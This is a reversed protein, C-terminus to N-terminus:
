TKPEFGLKRVERNYVEYIDRLESSAVTSSSFLNSALTAKLIDILDKKISMGKQCRDLRQFTLHSLPSSWTM